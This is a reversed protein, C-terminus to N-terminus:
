QVEVDDLAPDYVVDPPPADVDVTPVAADAQAAAPQHYNHVSAKPQMRGNVSIIEPAAEIRGLDGNLRVIVPEGYDARRAAGCTFWMSKLTPHPVGLTFCFWLNEAFSTTGAAETHHQRTASTRKNAQGSLQGMIWVPCNFPIAIQRLCDHCFSSMLAYLQEPRLGNENVLRRICLQFYDIVVRGPDYGARVSAALREAIEALGRSGRKPDDKPGSMDHLMIKKLLEKCQQYREYEGLVHASGDKQIEKKFLAKEYPKLAGMHSLPEIKWKEVTQRSICAVNSILRKRMEDSGAEYHFLHAIRPRYPGGAKEVESARNLEYEAAGAVLQIALTTKGSKFAGLVGYTEGPVDGGIMTDVFTINTPTKILPEPEWGPPIVEEGLGGLLANVTARREQAETLLLPLNAIAQEGADRVARRVPGQVWREDLFRVLLSRGYELQLEGDKLQFAWALLGHDPDFLYPDFEPPMEHRYAGLYGRCEGSLANWALAPSAFIAPLGQDAVLRTAVKWVVRFHPEDADGFQDAKLVACAQVFLDKLRLLHGVLQQRQELSLRPTTEVSTPQQTM